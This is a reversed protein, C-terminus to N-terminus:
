ADYASLAPSVEIIKVADADVRAGDVGSLQITLTDSGMWFIGLSMWGNGAFVPHEPPADVQDVWSRWYRTSATTGDYVTYPAAASNAPNAAWNVLVEYYRGRTPQFTWTASNGVGVAYRHDGGSGGSDPTWTGSSSWGAGGDDAQSTPSPEAYPAIQAVVRNFNDYQTRSVRGLPDITATLNGGADYQWTTQPANAPETQEPPLPAPLPLTQRVKRGVADYQSVVSRGLADTTVLANGVADYIVSTTHSPDGAYEGLADTVAIARGLLDYATYTVAGRPDTVSITPRGLSGAGDPDPGIVALKRGLRDYQYETTYETQSHQTGLPNVVYRLNGNGDYEYRTTLTDYPAAGDPDPLTQATKRDLENYTYQVTHAPDGESGGRADTVYQLNGNADYQYYTTPRALPEAPGDPDPLIESRKRGLADYTYETTRGEAGVADVPANVTVYQLNGQADYAYNTQSVEIIRVADAVVLGSSVGSLRVTLTDGTIPFRGLSLWGRDRFEEISPPRQTQDVPCAWSTPSGAPGDHVTYPAAAVTGQFSLWTVLVEYYRGPAYGSPLTFQWTASASPANQVTRCDNGYGPAGPTWSGSTSFGADGDDITMAKSTDDYPLLEATKRGLKDYEYRTTNGRADTLGVVRGGGDYTTRVAAGDAQLIAIPRNRGDYVSQAVNGMADTAAVLNGAADYHVTRYTGDPNATKIVRGMDDYASTSTRQRTGTTAEATSTLKGAPTYEFTTVHSPLPGNTGGLDDPDPLTQTKRRGLLDYTYTTVNGNGDTSSTLNGRNDYTSTQTISETSSVRSTRSMVQGAINYTYTTKYDDSDGTTLVGKPATVSLPLGRNATPSSQEDPYTYSTINGLADTVRRLSYKGASDRYEYTTVIRDQVPLDAL